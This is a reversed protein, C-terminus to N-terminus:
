DGGRVGEYRGRQWENSQTEVSRNRNMDGDKSRNRHQLSNPRHRGVNFGTFTASTHKRILLVGDTHYGEKDRLHYGLNHFAIWAWIVERYTRRAHTHRVSRAQNALTWVAFTIQIDMSPQKLGSNVSLILEMLADVHEDAPLIDTWSRGRGSEDRTRTLANRAVMSRPACGLKMCALALDRDGVRTRRPQDLGMQLGCIGGEVELLTNHEIKRTPPCNVELQERTM